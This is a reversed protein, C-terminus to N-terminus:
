LYAIVTGRKGAEDGLFFFGFGGFLGHAQCIPPPFRCYCQQLMRILTNNTKRRELKNEALYAAFREMEEAQSLRLTRELLLKFVPTTASTAEALGAPALVLFSFHAM